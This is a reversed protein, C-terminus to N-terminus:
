SRTTYSMEFHAEVTAQQVKINPDTQGHEAVMVGPKVQQFCGIENGTSDPYGLESVAIDDVLAAFAVGTNKQHKYLDTENHTTKVLINIEVRLLIENKTGERLHMPGDIRIELCDPKQNTKRIDAEFFLNQASDLALIRRHLVSRISAVCWTYLRKDM